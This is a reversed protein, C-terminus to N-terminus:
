KKKSEGGKEEKKWEVLRARMFTEFESSASLRRTVCAVRFSHWLNDDLTLNVKTKM